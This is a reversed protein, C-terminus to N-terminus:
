LNAYNQELGLGLAIPLGGMMAALTTMLIPRFRVLCATKIAEDAPM